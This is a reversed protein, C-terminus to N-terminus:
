CGLLILQAQLNCNPKRFNQPLSLLILNNYIKANNKVKLSLDKAFHAHNANFDTGYWNINPNGSANINLDVGLGFGLDCANEILIFFITDLFKLPKLSKYRFLAIFYYDNNFM